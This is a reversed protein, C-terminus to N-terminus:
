GKQCGSKGGEGPTGIARAHRALGRRCRAVIGFSLGRIHLLIRVLLSGGLLYFFDFFALLRPAFLQRRLLVADEPLGARFFGKGVGVPILFGGANVPAAATTQRQEIGFGLELGAGAPRAKVLHPILAMDFKTAIGAHSGHAGFHHTSAAFPM